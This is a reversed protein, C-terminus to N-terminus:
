GRSRISSVSDFIATVISYAVILVLGAIIIVIIPSIMATLRKIRVDLEKDYRRGGKGLARGLEGTQEGVAIMDILLEPFGGSKEMADSLADGEGVKTALSEMQSRLYTNSTAKGMLRLGALLPVGNTLLNGLSHCLGAFFRTSAIPGILPFGLKTEDWWLRGKERAVLSRWLVFVVALSSPLAWWYKIFGNSFQVLMKTMWPLEQGTNSLLNSLQPILVTMFVVMLLVCAFIMFIPYILAQIVKNQLEQMLTLNAALRRLIKPLSGSVEGAAVLNCYLEGFSPSAKGLAESFSEGDRLEERLRRSVKQLAPSDRRKELVGLAQQLQLGADLLDGLEETFFIVQTRKLKQAGELQASQVQDSGKPSRIEVPTLSENELYRYVEQRSAAELEGKITQGSHDIASYNFQAM